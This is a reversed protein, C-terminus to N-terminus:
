RWKFIDLYKTSNPVLDKSHIYNISADYYLPIYIYMKKLELDLKQLNKSKENKNGKSVIQLVLDNINQNSLNSYNFDGPDVFYSLLEDQPFNSFLLEELIIDYDRQKKAELYNYYSLIKYSVSFGLEKLKNIFNQSVKFDENSKFLFRIKKGAGDIATNKYSPIFSTDKFNTNEFLSQLRRQNDTLFYEKVINFDYISYVEKRLNIDAFIGNINFFYAKFTPIVVNNKQIFIADKNSIKDEKQLKKFNIDGNKYLIPLQQTTKVYIYNIKDFNFYGKRSPIDAGWYNNNKVFTINKGMNFQEIYYAGSTIPIDLSTNLFDKNEWYKKSIIPLSVILNFLNLSYKKTEFVVISNNIKKIDNIGSLKNKFYPSGYQKIINFTFIVDEASIVEGNSWKASKNIYFVINNGNIEYKEALLPKFTGLSDLQELMLSDYMLLYYDEPLVGVISFPNLNNFSGVVGLKLSNAFLVNVFFLTIFVLNLIVFQYLKLM